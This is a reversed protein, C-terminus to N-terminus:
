ITSGGYGPVDCAIPICPGYTIHSHPPSSCYRDKKDCFIISSVVSQFITNSYLGTDQAFRRLTRLVVPGSIKALPNSGLPYDKHWRYMAEFAQM